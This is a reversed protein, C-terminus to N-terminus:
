NDRFRRNFIIFSLVGLGRDRSIGSESTLLRQERKHSWLSWSVQNGRNPFFIYLTVLHDLAM